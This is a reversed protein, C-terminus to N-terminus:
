VEQIRIGYKALMLKRKIVYEKTRTAESKADEVVRAWGSKGDHLLYVFDAIYKVEREVVKGNEDRQAPILVFPVQRKLDTVMGAREMWKLEAWREAEHKSDFLMGDLETKRNGYKGM